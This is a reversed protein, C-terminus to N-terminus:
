EMLPCCMSDKPAGQWRDSSYTVEVIIFMPHDLKRELNAM